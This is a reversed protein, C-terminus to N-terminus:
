KTASSDSSASQQTMVLVETNATPEAIDSTQKTQALSVENIDLAAQKLGAKENEARKQPLNKYNKYFM